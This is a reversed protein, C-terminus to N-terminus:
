PGTDSIHFYLNIINKKNNNFLIKDFYNIYMIIINYVYVDSHITISLSLVSRIQHTHYVHQSIMM